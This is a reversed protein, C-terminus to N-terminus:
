GRLDLLRQHLDEVIRRFIRGDARRDADSRMGVSLGDHERNMIAARAEGALFLALDATAEEASRTMCHGGGPGPEAQPNRVGEDRGIAALDLDLAIAGVAAGRYRDM